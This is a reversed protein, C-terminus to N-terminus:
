SKITELKPSSIKGDEVLQIVLRAYTDASYGDFRYLLEGGDKQRYGIYFDKGTARPMDLLYLKGNVVINDPFYDRLDGQSYASALIDEGHHVPQLMTSVYADSRDYSAYCLTKDQPFGAEKLRLSVTLSTIDEGPTMANELHFIRMYFYM